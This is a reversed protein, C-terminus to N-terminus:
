KGKTSSPDDFYIGCNGHPDVKDITVERAIGLVYKANNRKCYKLHKLNLKKVAEVAKDASIDQVWTKSM